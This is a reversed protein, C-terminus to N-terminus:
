WRWRALARREADVHGADVDRQDGAEDIEEAPLHQQQGGAGIRHAEAVHGVAVGRPHLLVVVRQGVASTGTTITWSSMTQVEPGIKGGRQYRSYM